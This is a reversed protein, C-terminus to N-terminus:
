NRRREKCWEVTRVAWFLDRIGSDLFSWILKELFELVGMSILVLLLIWEM